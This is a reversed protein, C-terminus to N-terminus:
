YKEGPTYNARSLKQEYISFHCAFEDKKGDEM